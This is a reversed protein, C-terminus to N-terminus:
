KLDGIKVLSEIYEEGSMIGKDKFLNYCHKQASDLDKYTYKTKGKSRTEFSRPEVPSIVDAVEVDEPGRFREPFEKKLEREIMRLHTEPELNLTALEKDKMLALAQIEKAELSTDNIWSSNREKFDDLAKMSQPAAIPASYANINQEATNVAELDGAEIAEIRQQQLEALVKQRTVDETKKMHTKLENLTQKLEKLERGRPELNELGYRLFAEADKPGNPNWGYEKALAHYPDDTKEVSKETTIGQKELVEAIQSEPDRLEEDSMQNDEDEVRAIIDEDNVIRHVRGTLNYLEVDDNGSYRVIKVKDGVECWAQGDSFDKFAQPGIALVTGNEMAFKERTTNAPNLLIGGESKKETIEDM